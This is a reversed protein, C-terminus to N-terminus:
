KSDLGANDAWIRELTIVGSFDLQRMSQFHQGTFDDPLSPNDGVFTIDDARPSINLNEKYEPEDSIVHYDAEWLDTGLMEEATRQGVIHDVQQRGVLLLDNAGESTVVWLVDGIELRGYQNSATHGLLPIHERDAVTKPKWYVLYHSM